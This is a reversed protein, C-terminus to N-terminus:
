PLHWLLARAWSFDELVFPKGAVPGYLPDLNQLGFCFIKRFFIERLRQVSYSCSHTYLTEHAASHILFAKPIKLSSIVVLVVVVLTAKQSGGEPDLFTWTLIVSM